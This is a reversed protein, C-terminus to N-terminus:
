PLAQLIAAQERILRMHKCAPYRVCILLHKGAFKGNPAQRMQLSSGCDPCDGLVQIGPSNDSMEPEGGNRVPEEQGPSKDWNLVLSRTIEIRLEQDTYSDKVPLRFVPVGAAKLASDVFGEQRHQGDPPNIHSELQIIGLIDTGDKECLVFDVSQREIRERASGLTREPLEPDISLINSLDVKAFICYQPDLARILASHLSQEHATLLTRERIYPYDPSEPPPKKAFKGSKALYFLVLLALPIMGVIIILSNM